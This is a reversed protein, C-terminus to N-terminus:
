QQMQPLPNDHTFRRKTSSPTMSDTDRETAPRFVIRDRRVREVYNFLSVASIAGVIFVIAFAALADLPSNNSGM